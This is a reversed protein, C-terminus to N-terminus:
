SEHLLLETGKRVLGVGASGSPQAIIVRCKIKESLKKSEIIWAAPHGMQGKITQEKNATATTMSRIKLRLELRM